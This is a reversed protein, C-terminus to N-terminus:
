TPNGRAAQALVRRAQTLHPADLMNGDLAAVGVDPSGEFLAVIRRAEAVESEGPTFAANIAEIQSPHIALMGVFGDRRARALHEQLGIKDAFAPFVTEIAPVGAGAAAALTLSRALEYLGTYRGADDRPSSAGVAASLDEAGWTLARLRERCRAYGGLGFLAAPTETAIPLIGVLDGCRAAPADRGSLMESLAAADLPTAKPLVIGDIAVTALQRVDESALEGLPNIRVWLEPGRDHGLSSIFERVSRRAQPKMRTAVSDELDLILADAASLWAKRMRDPRDGPVFLWSRPIMRDNATADDGHPPLPM